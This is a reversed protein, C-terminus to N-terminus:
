RLIRSRRVIGSQEQIYGTLLEDNVAHLRYPDGIADSQLEGFLMATYGLVLDSLAKFVQLRAPIVDAVRSIAM